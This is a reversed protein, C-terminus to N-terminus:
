QVNRSKTGQLEVVLSMAAFWKSIMKDTLKDQALLIM